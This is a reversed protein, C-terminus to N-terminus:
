SPNEVILVEVRRNAEREEATKEPISYLPQSVGFGEFTMRSREIGQSTLFMVIAKARDRSLNKRDATMCCVHGELKIKMGPNARMVELLEFLRPRSEPMIGFTNEYFNMNPLVIKQGPPTAAVQKMFNVDLTLEEEKGGPGAVTVKEPYVVEKKEKVTVLKPAEEKIGLIENEKHLDKKQLFYITVKRNEAKNASQRHQEGFSHTKFDERTLVNNKVSAYVTTVRQQALTDNYGSTGDEDTYGNIALIKSEKNAAMWKVLKDSEGKSLEYKNSDFYVSFQEQAKSLLPLLFLLGFSLLRKM